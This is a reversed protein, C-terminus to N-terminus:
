KVVDVWGGDDAGGLPDFCLEVLGAYRGVVAAVPEAVLADAEADLGAVLQESFYGSAALLFGSLVPCFVQGRGGVALRDRDRPCIGCFGWNLGTGSLVEHVVRTRQTLRLPPLDDTLFRARLQYLLRNLVLEPQVRVELHHLSLGEDVLVQAAYQKLQFSITGDSPEYM